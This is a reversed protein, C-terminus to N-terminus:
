HFYIALVRVATFLSRETGEGPSNRIGTQGTCYQAFRSLFARRRFVISQDPM